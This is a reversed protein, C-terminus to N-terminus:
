DDGMGESVEEVWFTTGKGTMKLVHVKTNLPLDHHADEGLALVRDHTTDYENMKLELEEGLRIADRKALENMVLEADQRAQQYESESEFDISFERLAFDHARLRPTPFIRTLCKISRQGGEFELLMIHMVDDAKIEYQGIRITENM